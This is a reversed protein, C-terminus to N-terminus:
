VSWQLYKLVQQQEVNKAPLYVNRHVNTISNNVAFWTTDLGLKSLWKTTGLM